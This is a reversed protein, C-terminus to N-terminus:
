RLILRDATMESKEHLSEWVFAMNRSGAFATGYANGDNTKYFYM